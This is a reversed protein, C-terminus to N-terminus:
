KLGIALYGLVGGRGSSFPFPYGSAIFTVGQGCVTFLNSKADLQEGGSLM